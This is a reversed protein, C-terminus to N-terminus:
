SFVKQMKGYYKLANLLFYPSIPDKNRAIEFVSFNSVSLLVYTKSM